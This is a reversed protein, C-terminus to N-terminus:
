KNVDNPLGGRLNSVSALEGRARLMHAAVVVRREQVRADGREVDYLQVCVGEPMAGFVREVLERRVAKAGDAFDDECAERADLSSRLVRRGRMSLLSVNM